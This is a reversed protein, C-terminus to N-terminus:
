RGRKRGASAPPSASSRRPRPPVYDAYAATVPYVIVEDGIGVGTVEAGVETVVGACELGIYPMSATIGAADKLDDDVAHFTGSYLKWDIPNM